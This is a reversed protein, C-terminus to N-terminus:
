RPMWRDLEEMTIGRREAYDQRQDTAVNGIVFYHSEPHSIMFGSISSAPKMAGNSTVEIGVHSFDVLRQLTFIAWQDPLQPYGAAPRIGQYECRLARECDCHEDPAYGWIQRRARAHVLEASAEALRDSLSQYLLEKFDDNGHYGSIIDEIQQGVTM